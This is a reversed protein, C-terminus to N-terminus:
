LRTRWLAGLAVLLVLDRALAVSISTGGGSEGFCGCRIDLGRAAAAALAVAFVTALLTLTALAGSYLRRFALALGAFVELWPLYVAIAASLSWPTMRFNHVDIAFQQVDLLKLAGAYAFVGGVGIRLLVPIRSRTM